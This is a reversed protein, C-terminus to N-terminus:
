FPSKLLRPLRLKQVAIAYSPAQMNAKVGELNGSQHHTASSTLIADRTFHPEGNLGSGWSGVRAYPFALGDLTGVADRILEIQEMSSGSPSRSHPKSTPGDPHRFRGGATLLIRASRHCDGIM